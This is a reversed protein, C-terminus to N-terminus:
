RSGVSPECLSTVLIRATSRSRVRYPPMNARLIGLQLEATGPDTQGPTSFKRSNKRAQTTPLM